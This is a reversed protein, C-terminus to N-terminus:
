KLDLVRILNTHGPIGMPAGATIVLRDGKQALGWAYAQKEALEFLEDTNHCQPILVPVVGWTLALQHYVKEHSTLAIIPKHPRFRSVMRATSGSTTGAVLAAADIDQALYCAARSIAGETAPVLPGADAKLFPRMDLGKEAAETIRDLMAVSQVPFHGVATEDSLMVADTGDLVANAVDAAEARTPRPSDMMSRLMQTATIVPKAAQRAMRIIKKQVLPVDELYMEVGLDGRAVMVGDVHELIQELREVAQPKEIKAILLPPEEEQNLRHRVEKLDDEHRVFSVAVYDVGQELGVELDAKDKETFSSVRLNSSPLNVGKRSSLSGGVLVLCRVRNEEIGTVRLEVLGDSLLIREGQTVDEVLYPYNVPLTGPEAEVGPVLVIEQGPELEIQGGPVEGLRIKPGALDQLIAINRGKERAAKRVLGITRRHSDHDGHSFNLRVVNLGAEILSKITDLNDTVPGLTAVIKTRRLM